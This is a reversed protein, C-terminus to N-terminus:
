PPSTLIGLVESRTAKSCSPLDYGAESPLTHRGSLSNKVISLFSINVANLTQGAHGARRASTECGNSPIEIVRPRTRITPLSNESSADLEQERRRQAADLKRIYRVLLWLPAIVCNAPLAHEAVWAIGGVIYLLTLFGFMSRVGM